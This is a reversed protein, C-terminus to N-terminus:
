RQAAAEHAPWLRGAPDVYIAEARMRYGTRDFVTDGIHRILFLVDAATARGRNLIFNAHQESIEADGRTMGKLGMREIVAGPPGYDAYMAPDSVFTSGCNPWKQPFRRRRSQLIEIMERRVAGREPAHTFRLTVDVVIEGNTQFISRRYAFGCAARPRVRVTGKRDVSTVEIVSDGIGKRKTGGNMCVLGGLTGPIGCIHEAGTLDAQMVRRALGPVWVGSQAHVVEGAITCDALREAIQICVAHLGEDAFLLNSTSGIVIYPHHFAHVTRLVAALEAASAPRVVVAARGGIRWRSMAALDVDCAVGEPCAEDLARVLAPRTREAAEPTLVDM